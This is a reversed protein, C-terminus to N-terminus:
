GKYIRWRTKGGLSFIRIHGKVKETKILEEWARVIKEPNSFCFAVVSPGAGSLCCGAAGAKIASEYLPEFHPYLKKRYVQHLRDDTGICLLEKNKELFGALLFCARPINYVADQLSIKEPLVGRAKETRFPNESVFFVGKTEEPIDIKKWVPRGSSEAVIVLGGLLSAALDDLHGEFEKGIKLIEAPEIRKNSFVFGAIAGALVATGSSGLGRGAPISSRISIHVFPANEGLTMCTKRFVKLCLNREDKEIEPDSVSVSFYKSREFIFDNFLNVSIGICDFGSGVNGICGPVSIKIKKIMEPFTYPFLRVRM